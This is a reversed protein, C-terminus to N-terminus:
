DKEVMLVYDGEGIGSGMQKGLGTGGKRGGLEM